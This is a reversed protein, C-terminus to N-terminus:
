RRVGIKANYMYTKGSVGTAEVVVLYTGNAVDRDSKNKLNWTEGESVYIFVFEM